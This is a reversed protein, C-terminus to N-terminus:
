DVVLTLKVSHQVGNSTIGVSIAYTGAGVSHTTPAPPTSGGGGGSGACGPFMAVCVML